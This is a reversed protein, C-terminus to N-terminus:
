ILGIFNAIDEVFELYLFSFFYMVLVLVSAFLLTKIDDKNMKDEKRKNNTKTTFNGKEM